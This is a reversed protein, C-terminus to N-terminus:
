NQQKTVIIKKQQRTYSSAEIIGGDDTYPLSPVEPVRVASSHPSIKTHTYKPTSCVVSQPVLHMFLIGGGKVNYGAERM